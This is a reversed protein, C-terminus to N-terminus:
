ESDFFRSDFQLLVCLFSKSVFHIDINEKSQLLEPVPDASTQSLEQGFHSEEPFKSYNRNEQCDYVPTDTFFVSCVQHNAPASVPQDVAAQLHCGTGVTWPDPIRTDDGISIGHFCGGPIRKWATM